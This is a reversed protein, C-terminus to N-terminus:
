DWLNDTRKLLAERHEVPVTTSSALTRWEERLNNLLYDEAADDGWKQRHFIYNKEHAMVSTTLKLCLLPHEVECKAIHDAVRGRQQWFSNM